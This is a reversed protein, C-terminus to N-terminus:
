TLRRKRAWWMRSLWARWLPTAAEGPWTTCWASILGGAPEAAPMSMGDDVFDLILGRYRAYRGSRTGAGRHLARSAQATRLRWTSPVRNNTFQLREINVLTDSGDHNSIHRLLYGGATKGLTYQGPQWLLSRTLV